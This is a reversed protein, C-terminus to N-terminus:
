ASAEAWPDDGDFLARLNCRVEDAAAVVDKPLAKPPAAVLSYETDKGEGTKSIKIDYATPDGYDEDKMFKFLQDMLTRQTLELIKFDNAEYDYVLGAIFRKVSIKGSLDPALNAPLEEPRSEWRIPRKDITWASFGTIGAGVFRLRKEGQLKSPNIYRGNGSSESSIEEIADVSLFATTM